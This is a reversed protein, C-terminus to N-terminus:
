RVLPLHSQAGIQNAVFKVIHCLIVLIVNNENRVVVFVDIQNGRFQNFADFSADNIEICFIYIGNRRM